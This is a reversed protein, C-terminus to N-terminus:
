LERTVQTVILLGNLVSKDDMKLNIAFNGALLPSGKLYGNECYMGQPLGTIEQVTTSNFSLSQEFYAYKQAVIRFGKIGGGGGFSTQGINPPKYDEIAVTVPNLITSSNKISGKKYEIFIRESNIRLINDDIDYIKISKEIGIPLYQKPSNNKRCLTTKQNNIQYPKLYYLVPINKSHIIEDRMSLLPLTYNKNKSFNVITCTTNALSGSSTISTELKDIPFLIKRPINDMINVPESNIVIKDFDFLENIAMVSKEAVRNSDEVYNDTILINQKINNNSVATGNSIYLIKSAGVNSISQAFGDGFSM